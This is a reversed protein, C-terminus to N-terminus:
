RTSNLSSRNRLQQGVAAADAEVRIEMGSLTPSHTDFEGSGPVGIFSPACPELVPAALAPTAVAVPTGLVGIAVTVLLSVTVCKRRMHGTSFFRGM